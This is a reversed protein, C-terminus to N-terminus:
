QGGRTNRGHTGGGEPFEIEARRINCFLALSLSSAFGPDLFTRIRATHVVLESEAFPQNEDERWWSRAEKFRGGHVSAIVNIWGALMPQASDTASPRPPHDPHTHYLGVIDLRDHEAARQAELFELPSFEFDFRGRGQDRLVNRLSRVQIARKTKELPGLLLGCGEFPYASESEQRLQKWAVSTFYLVPPIKM